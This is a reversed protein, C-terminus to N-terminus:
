IRTISLRTRRRVPEESSATRERHQTHEDDGDWIPPGEFPNVLGGLIPTVDSVALVGLGHAQQDGGQVKGYDNGAMKSLASIM